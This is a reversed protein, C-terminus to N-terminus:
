VVSKRDLWTIYMIISHQIRLAVHKSEVQTIKLVELTLNMCYTSCHMTPYGVSVIFQNYLVSIRRIVNSSTVLLLQTLHLYSLLFKTDRVFGGYPSVLETSNRIDCQQTKVSV